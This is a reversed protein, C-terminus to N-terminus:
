NELVSKSADSAPNRGLEWRLPFEPPDVPMRLHAAFLDADAHEVSGSATVAILVPPDPM